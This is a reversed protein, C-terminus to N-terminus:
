VSINVSHGRNEDGTDQAPEEEHAASTERKRKDKDKETQLQNSKESKPAPAVANAQLPAVAQVNPVVKTAVDQPQINTMLPPQITPIQM